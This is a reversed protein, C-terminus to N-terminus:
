IPRPPYRQSQRLQPAPVRCRAILVSTRGNTRTPGQPLAAPLQPPTRTAPQSPRRRAAPRRVRIGPRHGQPLTSAGSTLNLSSYLPQRNPKGSTCQGDDYSEARRDFEETVTPHLRHRNEASGQVITHVKRLHPQMRRSRRYRILRTTNEATVPFGPDYGGQDPDRRQRQDVRRDQDDPSRVHVDVGQACRAAGANRLDRAPGDVSDRRVPPRSPRAARNQRPDRLAARTEPRTRLHLRGSRRTPPPHRRTSRTAVAYACLM